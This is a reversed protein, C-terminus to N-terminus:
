RQECSSWSARKVGKSGWSETEDEGCCLGKGKGAERSWDVVGSNKGNLLADIGVCRLGISAREQISEEDVSM